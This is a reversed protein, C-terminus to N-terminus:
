SESKSRTNRRRFSNFANTIASALKEGKLFVTGYTEFSIHINNEPDDKAFIEMAVANTGYDEDRDYATGIHDVNEWSLFHLQGEKKTHVKVGESDFTIIKGTGTTMEIIKKIVLYCIFVFVLGAFVFLLWYLANDQYYFGAFILGVVLLMLAAAVALTQGIGHPIIDFKEKSKKIPM